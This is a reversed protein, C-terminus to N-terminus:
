VNQSDGLYYYLKEISIVGLQIKEIGLQISVLLITLGSLFYKTYLEVKDDDTGEKKM